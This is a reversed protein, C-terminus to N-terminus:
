FSVTAEAFAFSSDNGEFAQDIMGYGAAFYIGANIVLAIPELLTSKERNVLNFLFVM